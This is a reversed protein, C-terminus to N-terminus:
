RQLSTFHTQSVHFSSFYGARAVQGVVSDTEANWKSKLTLLAEKLQFRDVERGCVVGRANQEFMQDFRINFLDAPGTESPVGPHPASLLASLSM